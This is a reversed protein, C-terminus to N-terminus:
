RVQIKQSHVSEVNGANDEARWTITKTSSVSIPGSYVPSSSTPTSGNTTYRINKVGSGGTDTASLTASVTGNYTSTKCTAGNCRITSAPKTKDISVTQSRTAELNGANDEARWKITSTSTVNIAGTYIPSSSTPTSGNTTYRINKLGSGGTDSGSLTVSVNANYFGSSCAGAGCKITSTPKATDVSITKSNTAIELNGANDEARFKITTTSSIAVSGGNAVLPDSADPTSGDTTYHIGKLGSGGTDTGSLKASVTQNYFGSSCAAGNCQISSTPKATDISITQSKVAEANGANDWARFKITTTSAVNIPDSYLTSSTTPDSGNTTYRIEKLGAGGVDSASLAASVSHNYFGSQCTGGDCTIQSVPPTADQPPPQGAMMEGITEVETGTSERAQLWALLTNFDSPTMYQDDVGNPDSCNTVSPDCLHHFVLNMSTPAGTNRSLTEADAIWDEVEPLTDNVDVSGRTRIVWRNQPPVSEAKPEGAGGLGSVGRGSSYGCEQVLRESTADHDGFPYAFSVQPYGRSLLAQRGDCIESRQQDEPLTPLHLHNQTHGGIENGHDYITQVQGWTMYPSNPRDVRGPIIFFTGEMGHDDLMQVAPMQDANGDDFSLTVATNAPVAAGITITQSKTAEANGANDWARFTITTTSNVAIPGSYLPSSTTPASGDTTYRIEKVGSGGTDTASLTATVGHSYSAQCAGGDCSIQTVPPTLDTAGQNMVEGVTKVQTGTPAGAQLWDLLADFDQPTIHSTPCTPDQAPDCVNAFAIPFWTNVGQSAQTIWTEIEALTDDVDISGRTRVLYPNAPPISEAKPQGTGGLGTDGRASTYGCQQVQNIAAADTDASGHPWAFSTPSYGMQQLTARDDCIQHALTVPDLGALFSNNVTQGGIENGDSALDDVQGWTLRGNQNVRGSNVYFTGNMSHDALIQRASYQNAIASTFTLSVTTNAAAPAVWFASAVAAAAIV